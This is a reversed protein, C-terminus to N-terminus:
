RLLWELVNGTLSNMNQHKCLIDEVAVSSRVQVHLYKQLITSGTSLDRLDKSGNKPKPGMLFGENIRMHMNQGQVSAHAYM